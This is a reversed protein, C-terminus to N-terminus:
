LGLWDSEGWLFRLGQRKLLAHQKAKDLDCAVMEEVM